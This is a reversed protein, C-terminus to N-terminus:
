RLFTPRKTMRFQWSFYNTEFYFPLFFFHKEITWFHLSQPISSWFLFVVFFLSSVIKYLNITSYFLSLGVFFIFYRSVISVWWVACTMILLKGSLSFSLLTLFFNIVKLWVTSILLRCERVVIALRDQNCVNCAFTFVDFNFITM